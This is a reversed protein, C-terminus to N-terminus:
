VCLHKEGIIVADGQRLHIDALGGVDVGYGGVWGM